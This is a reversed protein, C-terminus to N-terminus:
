RYPLMFTCSVILINPFVTEARHTSQVYPLVSPSLFALSWPFLSSKRKQLTMTESAKGVHLQQNTVVDVLLTMQCTM